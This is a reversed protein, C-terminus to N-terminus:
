IRLKFLYQKDMKFQSYLLFEGVPIAGVDKMKASGRVNNAAAIPKKFQKRIGDAGIGRSFCRSGTGSTGVM